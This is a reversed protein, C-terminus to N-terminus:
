DVDVTIYDMEEDEDNVRPSRSAHVGDGDGSETHSEVDMEESAKDKGKTDKEVHTVPVKRAAEEQQALKPLKVVLVGTVMKANIKETDVSAPANRTGLRVQKEFVGVERDRDSVVLWNGLSEDIEPRFVVGALRLTSNAADYDVSIDKKEAGPLSVHVVYETPADFIDARPVFDVEDHNYTEPTAGMNKMIDQLNVGLHSNINELFSM